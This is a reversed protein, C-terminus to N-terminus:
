RAIGAVEDLSAEAKVGHCVARVEGLRPLMMGYRVPVLQRPNIFEVADGESSQNASGLVAAVPVMRAVSVQSHRAVGGPRQLTHCWM